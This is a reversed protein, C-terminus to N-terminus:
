HESINVMFPFNWFILIWNIAYISVVEILCSDVTLLFVILRQLSYNLCSARLTFQMCNGMVSGLSCPVLYSLSSISNVPIVM